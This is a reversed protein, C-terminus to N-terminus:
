LNRKIANLHADLVRLLSIGFTPLSQILEPLIQRDIALLLCRTEAIVSATRAHRRAVLAIEGVIDGVGSHGVVKNDISITMQGELIVYMLLAAAGEHFVVRKEPVNMLANEGLKQKLTNLMETSLVSSNKSSKNDPPPTDKTATGIKPLTRILVDMLMFLFTPQKKLSAIFQKESLAVLKCATGATATANSATYPTFEGFVQGSELNILNGSVTQVTVTGDLLLYTKDTQLFSFFGPKQGSVFFTEGAKASEVSGFLKFFELAANPDYTIHCEVKDQNSSNM